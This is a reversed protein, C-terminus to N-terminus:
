LTLSLLILYDDTQGAVYMKPARDLESYGLNLWRPRPKTTTGSFNWYSWSGKSYDYVYLIATSGIPDAPVEECGPAEGEENLGVSGVATDEGSVVVVEEEM